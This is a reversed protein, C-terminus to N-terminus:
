PKKNNILEIWINLLIIVMFFLCTNNRDATTFYDIIFLVYIAAWLSHTLIKRM